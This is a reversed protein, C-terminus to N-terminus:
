VPSNTKLQAEWPETESGFMGSDKPCIRGPHDARENSESDCLNRGQAVADPDGDANCGGHQDPPDDSVRRM